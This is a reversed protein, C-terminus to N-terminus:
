AAPGQTETWARQSRLLFCALAFKPGWYVGAFWLMGLVDTHRPPQLWSLFTVTGSFLTVGMLLCGAQFPRFMALLFAVPEVLLLSFYILQNTLTDERATMLPTSISIALDCIYIM